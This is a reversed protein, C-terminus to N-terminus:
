QIALLDKWVQKSNKNYNNLGWTNLSHLGFPKGLWAMWLHSVIDDLNTPDAKYLSSMWEIESSGVIPVRLHAFDAAVINFTESFSVQMGIDIKHILRLFDKHLIWEHIILKHPTGEFLSVLNRYVNEGNTEIRSHNIHFHLSKGLENAFAMAAMGQILQNKLPRIAGFSAISIVGPIKTKM